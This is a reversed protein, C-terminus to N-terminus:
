CHWIDVAAGKIPRCTRANVVALQLTLPLGPRGEAVNRRVRENAIYYPGETQEPTLVCAVADAALADEDGLSHRGLADAGVAAAMAGALKLLSSRTLGGNM